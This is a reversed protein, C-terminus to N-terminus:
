RRVLAGAMKLAEAAEEAVQRVIEGAPLVRDILAVSQGAWLSLAEVDGSVGAGVSSSAYRVIPEDNVTAVTEGEGPREGSRPRGAAEWREVTSNRLTRHPADPWGVDFLSSHVTSTDGAALLLERYGPHIPAEASLVFRTGLWGASAGLTLVAALGRGDGIGGAAVVPVPAVADVVAPVLALTAVEGRVHGGAEWGQAVVVDVGADVARRAESVDGATHLVIADARHAIPVLDTPDGWFFSVIGVGADLCYRLREGQPWDLILNVGFPRDTLERVRALKQDIAEPEDWTVSVMGLGGANSVAAALEPVALSGIPAQVIPLPIGVLRCFATDFISTM